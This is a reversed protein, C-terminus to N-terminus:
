VSRWVYNQKGVYVGKELRSQLFRKKCAMYFLSLGRIFWCYIEALTVRSKTSEVLFGREVKPIILKASSLTM